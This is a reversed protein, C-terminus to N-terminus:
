MNVNTNNKSSKNIIMKKRSKKDSANKLQIACYFMKKLSYSIAM